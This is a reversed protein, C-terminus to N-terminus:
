RCQQIERIAPYAADHQKIAERDQPSLHIIGDREAKDMIWQLPADHKNNAAMEYYQYYDKFFRQFHEGGLPYPEQMKALYHENVAKIYPEPLEYNPVLYMVQM